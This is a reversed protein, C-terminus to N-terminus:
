STEHVSGTCAWGDALLHTFLWGLTNVSRSRWCYMEHLSDGVAHPLRLWDKTVHKCGQLCAPMQWGGPCHGHFVLPGCDQLRQQLGM